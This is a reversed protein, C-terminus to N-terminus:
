VKIGSGMWNSCPVRQSFSQLASEELLRVKVRFGRVRAFEELRSKANIGRERELIIVGNNRSSMTMLGLFCLTDPQEDLSEFVLCREGVVCRPEEGLAREPLAFLKRNKLSGPARVDEKGAPFRGEFVELLTKGVSWLCLFSLAFSALRRSLVLM